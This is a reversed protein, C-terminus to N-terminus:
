KWKKFGIVSFSSPTYDYENKTGFFVEQISYEWVMDNISDIYEFRLKTEEAMELTPYYGIIDEKSSLKFFSM